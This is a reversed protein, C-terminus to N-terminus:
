FTWRVIGTIMTALGIVSNSLNRLVFDPCVVRCNQAIMARFFGSGGLVEGGVGSMTVTRLGHHTAVTVLWETFARLHHRARIPGFESLVDLPLRNLLSHQSISVISPVKPTGMRNSHCQSTHPRTWMSARCLASVERLTRAVLTEVRVVHTTVLVVAVFTSTWEVMRIAWASAHCADIIHFELVRPELSVSIFSQSIKNSFRYIQQVFIHIYKSKIKKVFLFANKM